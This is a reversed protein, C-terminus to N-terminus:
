AENTTSSALKSGAFREFEACEENTMCRFPIPMAGNAKQILYVGSLKLVEVVESWDANLTGGKSMRKVGDANITFSCKGVVIVKYFYAVSGVTFLLSKTLWTMKKPNDSKSKGNLQERRHREIPVFDSLVQLYERLRYKVVVRFGEHRSIISSAAGETGQTQPLQQM